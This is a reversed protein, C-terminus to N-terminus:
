PGYASRGIGEGVGHADQAQMGAVVPGDCVDFVAVGHDLVDPVPTDRRGSVSALEIENLTRCGCSGPTAGPRNVRALRLPSGSESSSTIPAGNSATLVSRPGSSASRAVRRFRLPSSPIGRMDVIAIAATKLLATAAMGAPWANTFTPTHYPKVNSAPIAPLGSASQTPM